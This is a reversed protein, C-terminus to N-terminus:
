DLYIEDINSVIKARNKYSMYWDRYMIQQQQQKLNMEAQKIEESGWPISDITNKWLPKVIYYTNNYEVPSSVKGVPLAIAAAAVKTRYGIGPIYDNATVTDTVGSNVNKESDKLAALSGDNGVKKLLNDVYEKAMDKKLSDTLTKVIQPKVIDLAQVGKKVTRKVALLYLADNNELRESISEKERSFAFRGAGSLYGIKPIMQGKEFLGTSDFEVDKSMKAAEVFGKEVMVSRLSDIQESLQDITEITPVVKRLIHRAKVKLEGDRKEKGEVLIIHYGFNSRVPDSIKGTDLSFAVSDFQPVMTGKAFWGLDGGNEASGPDDSETKAEEIFAEIKNESSEIRSKLDAMEQKYINEDYETIKKPIKVYYLDAQDGSVFSDKHAEYYKKVMDDTIKSSDVTLMDSNVTAYEFVAKQHDLRYQQEIECKSAVAGANLLIDLKQGPILSMQTYAEFERLWPHHNYNDPDNLFAVYKSTDFAGNTQFVSVTDIGPLPNRKIYEFVEDASAGLGMKTMADHILIRNVEREWVQKPIMRSQQPPIDRNEEQMKQREMNVARDFAAGPIDKGNIKGALRIMGNGSGQNMGWNLFVTGGVFTVLIIMMITPAMERMKNIM